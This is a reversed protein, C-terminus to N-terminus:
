GQGADNRGAPKWALMRGAWLPVAGDVSAPVEWASKEYTVRSDNVPLRYFASGFGSTFAELKRLEGHSEFFDILLPVATPASYVGAAGAGSEKSAQPHPASDSGFFFKSDGGLVAACIASRDSDFKVVPKCFLHPALKEGLLDDLTLLLHHVTVTAAVTEPMSQVFAVADASSVHEVVLRLRPFRSVIRQLAPLFARERELVPASPEEAHVCLVLSEDQMAEFVPYAEEIVAVGDEANTTAGRPYLKGAVAGAAKLQSVQEAQRGGLVKFTLLPVFGPAAATITRGYSSLEEATAIPPMTNPMVLCRAFSQAATRAYADLMKGQRFHIHMDDPKRFTFSTM